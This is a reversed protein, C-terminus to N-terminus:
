EEEESVGAGADGGSPGEALWCDLYSRWDREALKLWSEDAGPVKKHFASALLYSRALHYGARAARRERPAMGSLAPDREPPINAQMEKVFGSFHPGSFWIAEGAAQRSSSRPAMYEILPHNETNLPSDEFLGSAGSLNGCYFLLLTADDARFRYGKDVASAARLRGERGPGAYGPGFLPARENQGVLAVVDQWVMFNNRWLTVQPFVEGMTRAIILFERETLQYLPVWQVFIGGPELRRAANRFHELTYLAGVGRRYVLFLDSDIIDFKESTAWLYHRGDDVIVEARPDDFLGRTYPGFHKRAAETVEPSLECAVVRELGYEPAMAEGATIGTGLGLFFISKARPHLLLPIRAQDMEWDASDTSGLGYHGNMNIALHEGRKAVAVTGGPGNWYEVLEEGERLRIKLLGGPAFLFASVVALALAAGRWAFGVDKLSVPFVAAALPYLLALVLISHWLGLWPLIVFGALLPGLVAGATNMASLGGLTRGPSSAHRESVKLLYPFVIGSLFLPPGVVVFALGFVRLIYDGWGVRTTVIKLDDTLGVLLFSSCAVAVGAAMLLVLLVKVPPWSRRAMAHAAAAGLALCVLTVVLVAAFTYVTNQFVHAFMQTWLVELALTALGSLFCMGLIAPMGPSLTGPDGDAVTTEALPAPPAPRLTRALAAAIAIVILTMFLAIAYSLRYGLVPPLVFGALLAGAAAGLTNIGYFLSATKGFEERSRIFLQGLVPLTGGMFFTAPCVLLAALLFKVVLGAGVSHLAPYALEFLKLLPFYAVACVFIGCELLAFAGLLNRMRGARRGWWASGLGIGIFYASLTAASAHASNGFLYGLQKMWLVEYLLGAAGSLLLVMPILYVLPGRTGGGSAPGRRPAAISTRAGASARDDM